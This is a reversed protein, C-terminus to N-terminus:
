WLWSHSRSVARMWCSESQVLWWAKWVNQLCSKSEPLATSKKHPCDQSPWHCLSSRSAMRLKMSWLWTTLAAEWLLESAQGSVGEEGGKWPHGTDQGGLERGGAEPIVTPLVTHSHDLVHALDQLVQAVCGLHSACLAGSDDWHLDWPSEPWSECLPGWSLPTWALKGMVSTKLILQAIKHCPTPPTPSKVERLRLTRKPSLSYYRVSTCLSDFVYFVLLLSHSLIFDSSRLLEWGISWHCMSGLHNDWPTHTLGEPTGLEKHGQPSYGVLGWQGHFEWALITSQTAMEKELPDERGLSWVSTEQVAPRSKVM